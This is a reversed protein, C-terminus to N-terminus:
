ADYLEQWEDLEDIGSSPERQQRRHAAAADNRDKEVQELHTLVKVKKPALAKKKLKELDLTKEVAAFDWPIEACVYRLADVFDDKAKTKPTTELLSTIESVLKELQEDGRRIKLMGYKFLTNLTGEGIEHGKEARVFPENLGSALIYFDKSAWDYVQTVPKLSHTSKLERYENLVDGASTEIGDGRWGIHVQGQKYDPSVAVFVCAAPHGTKGGSGIDVGGYYLWDSPVQEDYSSNREHDFSPYKLGDGVVFKGYIRRDVEAQTPCKAIARNIKEITWHTPTGDEYKMCDFLSVQIKLAGKHTEFKTGQKEMCRRWHEQGLTATFVLSFYGDTANVRAQLEPLLDLPLEEDCAVYFVTGTQLDTVNQKYTKFYISVGSNFHIAVIQKKEMEEKWGYKPHNKMSGKPLFQKWKTKFEVTAVEKTPYLYWFLNPEGVDTTWLEPWMESETAWHIMKRIQISSKGVQNAATLFCEKNRSEFFERSWSYHKWGWLYPLEAQLRQKAKRLAYEKTMAASSQM